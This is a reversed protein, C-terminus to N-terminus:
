TKEAIFDGTLFNPQPFCCEQMAKALLILLSLLATPLLFIELSMTVKKGPPHPLFTSDPGGVGGRKLYVCRNKVLRIYFILERSEAEKEAEGREIVETLEAEELLVEETEVLPLLEELDEEPEEPEELKEM